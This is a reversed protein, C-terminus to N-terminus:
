QNISCRRHEPCWTFSISTFSTFRAKLVRFCSNISQTSLVTTLTVTDGPEGPVTGAIRTYNNIADRKRRLSDQSPFYIAISFSLMPKM